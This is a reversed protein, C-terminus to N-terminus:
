KEKKTQLQNLMINKATALTIGRDALAMFSGEIENINNMRQVKIEKVNGGTLQEYNDVRKDCSFCYASGDENLSCADSSSCLPCPQHYKVFAM